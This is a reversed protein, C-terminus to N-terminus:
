VWVSDTVQDVGCLGRRLFPNSTAGHVSVWGCRSPPKRRDQRRASTRQGDRARPVITGVVVLRVAFGLRPCHPASRWSSAFRRSAFRTKGSRFAERGRIQAVGFRIEVGARTRPRVRAAALSEYPLPYGLGGLGIPEPMPRAKNMRRFQLM